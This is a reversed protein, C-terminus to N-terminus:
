TVISGGPVGSTTTPLTAISADLVRDTPNVFPGYAVALMLRNELSELSLRRCM